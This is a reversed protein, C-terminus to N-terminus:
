AAAAANQREAIEALITKLFERTRAVREKGDPRDYIILEAPEYKSMLSFLGGIL